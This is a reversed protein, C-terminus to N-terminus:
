FMECNHLLPLSTERGSGAAVGLIRAKGVVHGEKEAVALLKSERGRRGPGQIGEDAKARDSGCEEPPAPHINWHDGQLWGSCSLHCNVM